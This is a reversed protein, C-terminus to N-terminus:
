GPFLLMPPKIEQFICLTWIILHEEHNKKTHKKKLGRSCVGAKITGATGKVWVQINSKFTNQRMVFGKLNEKNYNM